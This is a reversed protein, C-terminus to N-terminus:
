RPEVYMTGGGGSGRSAIAPGTATMRAAIGPTGSMPVERTASRSAASRRTPEPVTSRTPIVRAIIASGSRSAFAADPRTSSTMGHMPQLWPQM